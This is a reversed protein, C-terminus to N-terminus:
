EGKLLSGVWIDVREGRHVLRKRLQGEMVFGAKQAVRRSAENGIEARWEILEV